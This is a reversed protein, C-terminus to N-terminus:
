GHAVEVISLGAFATPRLLLAEGEDVQVIEVATDDPTRCIRVATAARLPGEAFFACSRNARRLTLPAAGAPATGPRPLDLV